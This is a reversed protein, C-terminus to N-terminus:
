VPELDLWNKGCKLDVRVPVSLRVVGEMEKKVLEFFLDKERDVVEFVLEDHVQLLMKSMLGKAFIIRQINVMALKIMDACSGQVPANIAQRESFMRLAQNKSNIEPIYRRRGLITSVFGDKRAQAVCSDIFDKVGSYRQFYSHIFIEAEENGVGLDKALGFSSMGYIIGFNVRKAAERMRPAVDNEDVAYLLSATRSHIDRNDRFAETMAKDASLHALIRLEIQSYDASLIVGNKDPPIFARRIKRGEETKIPINQLNPSSSSLRGTETVAQNFSTHVRGSEKNVLAPLVDIYTSKLKSLQRYELLVRPLPHEDELQRLVNEDTSYGTKTKKVPKLKLVSFLVQSLQKPSNINFESGALSYIKKILGELRRGVEGSLDNLFKVDLAIGTTEMLALVEVLPMEVDYFLRALQREEILASLKDKLRCSVNLEDQRGPKAGTHMKLYDWAIAPLSYDAKASDLLHAAILADWLKGKVEIGNNKLCILQAKLDYGVKIVSEDALIKRANAGIDKLRFIKGNISLFLAAIRGFRIDEEDADLALGTEKLGSLYKKLGGDDIDDAAAATDTDPRMPPLGKLMSKFELRRFIEYLKDYDPEGVKLDDLELELPVDDKLLILERNRRILDKNEEVAKRIKESRIRSSRSILDEASGFERILESATKDGIGRVGPINDAADGTLAIVDVIREPSVGYKDRTQKEDYVVKADKQPSFVSVHKDVLQLIDKDMSVVTVEIGKDQAKKALTAIVDDAEYGAKEAAAVSYALLLEKIVPIQLSLGDPAPPRQIKYDEFKRQRFTDRSVDFCVCLYEPAEEKLIKRLVNLFGYIANTPFGSTTSLGRLAYFSRYCFAMADILYLREKPM